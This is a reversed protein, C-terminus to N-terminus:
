KREKYAAIMADAQILAAASVDVANVIPKGLLRHSDSAIIAQLALGAYWQHLTMRPQALLLVIEGLQEIVIDSDTQRSM